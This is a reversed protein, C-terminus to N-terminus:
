FYSLWADRRRKKLDAFWRCLPYLLLIVVAWVAYVGLLGYGYDKPYAALTEPNWPPGLWVGGAAGHRLSALLVAIGHILPLHLLYFFLPVRGFVIVPKSWNGLARDFLSLFVISPGLTMLLYLLSPPYKTTNVFSFVSFLLSSQTKWLSADGYLNTARLVVFAAMLGLGLWLLLRKREAPERRVLAGFGFGAAMVGIWPVLPYTVGFLYTPAIQIMSQVHLVQWLWAWGGFAEPRIPDLLNHGAIIVVGFTTVAWVPLHVLAALCVMSWGLAWIVAGDLFHPDIRFTWGFQVLTLELFILWFGRTFLFWSLDRTTKGRGLSLFAGTGALFCFVPACFHTILRTLFLAGHTRTLDTPDFLLADRSLFDRVHDLAMIIMIAGRLLDLADLRPRFGAPRIPIASESVPKM